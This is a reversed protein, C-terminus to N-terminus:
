TLANLWGDHDIVQRGNFEVVRHSASKEQPLTSALKIPKGEVTAPTLLNYALAVLRNPNSQLAAAAKSADTDPGLLGEAELRSELKKRLEVNLTASQRAKLQANDAALKTIQSKLSACQETLADNEMATKELVDFLNESLEAALKLKDQNV